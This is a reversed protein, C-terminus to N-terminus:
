CSTGRSRRRDQDKRPMGIRFVDGPMLQGKKGLAQEVASWDVTADALHQQAEVAHVPLSAGALAGVLGGGLTLAARRNLTYTFVTM